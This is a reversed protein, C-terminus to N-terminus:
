PLLKINLTHVRPSYRNEHRCDKPDSLHVIHHSKKLEDKNNQSNLPSKKGRSFSIGEVQEEKGSNQEKWKDLLGEKEREENEEEKGYFLRRQEGRTPSERNSM